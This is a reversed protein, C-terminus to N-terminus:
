RSAARIRSMPQIAVMTIPKASHTHPTHAAMALLRRACYWPSMSYQRSWGPILGAEAALSMVSTSALAVPEEESRSSVAVMSESATLFAMAM